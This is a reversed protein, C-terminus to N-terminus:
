HDFYSSLRAALQKGREGDEARAQWFKDRYRQATFKFWQMVAKKVKQYDLSDEATMQGIITRVEGSLCMRVSSCGVERYAM